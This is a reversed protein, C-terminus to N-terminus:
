LNPNKKKPITVKKAERWLYELNYFARTEEDFVHLVIDSFDVLIWRALEDKEKHVVGIKDKKCQKIVGECIAKVQRSSEASCIIFYDCINCLGRVDLIVPNNAKKDLAIEVIRAAKDKSDMM